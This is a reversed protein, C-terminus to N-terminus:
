ERFAQSPDAGFDSVQDRCRRIRCRLLSLAEYLDGGEAGDGIVEVSQFPNQGPDAYSMRTGLELHGIFGAGAAKADGATELLEVDRAHDSGRRENRFM